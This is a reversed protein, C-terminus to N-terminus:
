VRELEKVGQEDGEFSPRTNRAERDRMEWSEVRKHQGEGAAAAPIVTAGVTSGSTRDGKPLDPDSTKDAADFM